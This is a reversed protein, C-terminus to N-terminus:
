DVPERGFADIVIVKAHAVGEKGTDIVHAM